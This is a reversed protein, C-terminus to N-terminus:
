KAKIVTIKRESIFHNRWNNACVLHAACRARWGKREGRVMSQLMICGAFWGDTEEVGLCSFDVWLDEQRSHCFIWIKNELLQPEPVSLILAFLAPRAWVSLPKGLIHQRKQFTLILFIYPSFVMFMNLKYNTPKWIKVKSYTSISEVQAAQFVLIFFPPPTALSVLM